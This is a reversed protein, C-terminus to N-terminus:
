EENIMMMDSIEDTPYYFESEKPYEKKTFEIFKEEELYKELIPWEILHEFSISEDENERNSKTTLEFQKLVESIDGRLAAICLKHQPMIVSFDEDNLINEFDKNQKELSLAYNITLRLQYERDGLEKDQWLLRYVRESLNFHKTNILDLAIDQEYFTLKDSLDDKSNLTIFYSILIGSFLLEEVYYRVKKITLPIEDDIDYSDEKFMDLCSENIKGGNHVIANRIIFVDEIKEEYDQTFRKKFNKNRNKLERFWVGRNEWMIDKLYDNIIKSKLDEINNSNIVDAVNVPKTKNQLYEPNRKALLEIINSVFHEFLNTANIITTHFLIKIQSNIKTVGEIYNMVGERAQRNIFKIPFTFQELDKDYEILIECGEFDHNMLEFIYEVAGRPNESYENLINKLNLKEIQLYEELMKSISNILNENDDREKSYEEKDYFDYIIISVISLLNQIKAVKSYSNDSIIDHEEKLKKYILDLYDFQTKANIFYNSVTKIVESLEYMNRGGKITQLLQVM